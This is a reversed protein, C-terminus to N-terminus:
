CSKICDFEIAHWTWVVLHVIIRNESNSEVILQRFKSNTYQYPYRWEKMSMNCIFYIAGFDVCCEESNGLTQMIQYPQISDDAM